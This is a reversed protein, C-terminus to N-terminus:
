ALSKDAARLQALDPVPTMFSSSGCDLCVLLKPFVFIGLKDSNKLGSSRINVEAPFETQNSSGCSTCAVGIGGLDAPVHVPNCYSASICM